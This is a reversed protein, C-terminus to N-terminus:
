VNTLVVQMHSTSTIVALLCSDTEFFNQKLYLTEIILLWVTMKRFKLNLLDHNGHYCLYWKTKLNVLHELTKDYRCFKIKNFDTSHM